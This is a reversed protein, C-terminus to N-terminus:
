WTVAMIGAALASRGLMTQATTSPVSLTTWASYAAGCDYAGHVRGGSHLRPGDSKRAAHPRGLLDTILAGVSGGRM